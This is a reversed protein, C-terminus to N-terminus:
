KYLVDMDEKMSEIFISPNNIIEKDLEEKTIWRLEDVEEEQIKFDDLDMDTEFFYWQCFMKHKEHEYPPDKPGKRFKANTIGLEEEAEKIINSDYTEGEEVTGAVAPGWKGPSHKKTIARKALLIEGKKNTIWLASVRYIDKRKIESREKFCIIEDKENVIPIKQKM